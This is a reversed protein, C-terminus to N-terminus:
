HLNLPIVRRVFLCSTHKNSCILLKLANAVIIYVSSLHQLFDPFSYSFYFSIIGNTQGALTISKMKTRMPLPSEEQIAQIMNGFPTSIYWDTDSVEMTLMEM